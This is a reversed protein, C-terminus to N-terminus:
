KKVIKMICNGKKQEGVEIKVIEYNNVVIIPTQISKGQAIIYDLDVKSIPTGVQVKDGVEILNEFGNGKLEVTDIGIHILLEVGDKSKLGIAHNTKFITVVEGEIPSCIINDKPIIACGDGIVKNSFAQDDVAELKIVKCDVPAKIELKKKIFNIM